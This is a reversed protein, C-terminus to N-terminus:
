SHKGMYDSKLLLRSPLFLYELLSSRAKRVIHDPSDSEAVLQEWDYIGAGLIGMSFTGNVNANSTTGATRAAKDVRVGAGTGWAALFAGYGWGGIGLREKNALGRDIAANVMCACDPWDTIGVKGAIASAFAHGRGMGLDILYM